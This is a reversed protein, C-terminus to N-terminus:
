PVSSSPKKQDPTIDRQRRTPAKNTKPATYTTPEMKTIGKLPAIFPSRAPQHSSSQPPEKYPTDKNSLGNNKNM